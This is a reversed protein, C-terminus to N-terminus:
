IHGIAARIMQLVLQRQDAPIQRFLELLTREEPIINAKKGSDIAKLHELEAELESQTFTDLYTYIDLLVPNEIESYCATDVDIDYHKKQQRRMPVDYGMLWAESVNLAQAIIGLRDKKPEFAGSLYQSLASKPINTLRVLDSQSIANRKMAEKLRDKFSQNREIRQGIKM